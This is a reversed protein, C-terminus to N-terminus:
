QRMMTAVAEVIGEPRHNGSLVVGSASSPIIKDLETIITRAKAKMEALWEGGKKPTVRDVQMGGLQLLQYCQKWEEFADPIDNTTNKGGNAIWKPTLRRLNKIFGNNLVAINMPISCEPLCQHENILHCIGSVYLTETNKVRGAGWIPISGNDHRL